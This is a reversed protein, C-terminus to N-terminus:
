LCQLVPTRGAFRVTPRVRTVKPVPLANSFEVTVIGRDFAAVIEERAPGKPIKQKASWSGEYATGSQVDLFVRGDDTVLRVRPPSDAFTTNASPFTWVSLSTEDLSREPDSESFTVAAQGRAGLGTDPLVAFADVQRQGGCPIGRTIDLCGSSLLLSSLFTLRFLKM